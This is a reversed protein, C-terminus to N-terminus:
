KKKIEKIITVILGLAIIVYLLISEIKDSNEDLSSTIKDDIKELKKITEDPIKVSKDNVKVVM